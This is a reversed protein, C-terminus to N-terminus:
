LIYVNPRQISILLLLYSTLSIGKFSFETQYRLTKFYYRPGSPHMLLFHCEFPTSGGNFPKNKWHGCIIYDHFIQSLFFIWFHLDLCVLSRLSSLLDLGQVHLFVPVDGGPFTDRVRGTEAYKMFARSM